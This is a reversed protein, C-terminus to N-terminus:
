NGAKIFTALHSYMKERDVGRGAKIVTLDETYEVIKSESKSVKQNPQSNPIIDRDQNQNKIQCGLILIVFSIGIIRVLARYKKSQKM